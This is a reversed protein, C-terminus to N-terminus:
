KYDMEEPGEGAESPYLIIIDRNKLISSWYGDEPAYIVLRKANNDMLGPQDADGWWSSLEEFSRAMKKPYNPAQARLLHLFSGGARETKRM